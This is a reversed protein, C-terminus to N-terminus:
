LMANNPFFNCVAAVLFYGSGNEFNKYKLRESKEGKSQM